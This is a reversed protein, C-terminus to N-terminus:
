MLSADFGQIERMRASGCVDCILKGGLEYPPNYVERHLTQRKCYLCYTRVTHNVNACGNQGCLGCPWM